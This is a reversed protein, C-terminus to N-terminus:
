ATKSGGAAHPCRNGIAFLRGERAIVLVQKTQDCWSAAM